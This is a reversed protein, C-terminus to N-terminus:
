YWKNSISSSYFDPAHTGEHYRPYGYFDNIGMIDDGYGYEVEQQKLIPNGKNVESKIVMNQSINEASVPIFSLVVIAASIILLVVKKM